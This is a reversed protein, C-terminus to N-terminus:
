VPKPWPPQSILYVFDLCMSKKFVFLRTAAVFDQQNTMSVIRFFTVPLAHLSINSNPQGQNV